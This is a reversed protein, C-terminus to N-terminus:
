NPKGYFVSRQLINGDSGCSYQATPTLMVQMVGRTSVAHSLNNGQIDLFTKEKHVEKRHEILKMDGGRIDWVKVSGDTSGSVLFNENFPDLSLSVCALTHPRDAWKLVQRQRLDLAMIGGKKYGCFLLSQKASYVTCCATSDTPTAHSWVNAKSNPLLTDWFKITKKDEDGQGVTAFYSGTNLFVMDKCTRGSFCNLTRYPNVSDEQESWRWLSVRGDSTCAGFKSGSTNFAIRNVRAQSVVHYTGVLSPINWQWVKVAGGTSGSLYYPLKPHAQLCWISTDQHDLPASSSPGQSHVLSSPGLPAMKPVSLDDLAERRKRSITPSSPTMRGLRGPSDRSGAFRGSQSQLSDGQFDRNLTNKLGQLDFEKLGSGSAVVVMNPSVANIAFANVMTKEKYVAVPSSFFITEQSVSEQYDEEEENKTNSNDNDNDNDEEEEEEGEEFDFGEYADTTYDQPRGHRVQQPKSLLQSHRASFESQLSRFFFNQKFFYANELYDQTPQEELLYDALQACNVRNKQKKKKSSSEDTPLADGFIKAKRLLTICFHADSNFNYKQATAFDQNYRLTLIQTPIIHLENELLHLSRLLYRSLHAVTFSSHSSAGFSNASLFHLLIDSFKKFIILHMLRKLYNQSSTRFTIDQAEKKSKPMAVKADRWLEDLLSLGSSYKNAPDKKTEEVQDDSNKKPQKAQYPHWRTVEPSSLQDIQRGEVLEFMTVYDSLAWATAFVGIRSAAIVLFQDSFPLTTDEMEQKEGKEGEKEREKEREKEGSPTESGSVPSQVPRAPPIRSFMPSGFPSALSSFPSSPSPSPSSPSLPNPIHAPATTSFEVLCQYLHRSTRELLRAQPLTLNNGNNDFVLAQCAMKSIYQATYLLQEGAEKFKGTAHLLLYHERFYGHNKCFSILKSVLDEEPIGLSTSITTIDEKLTKLLGDMFEKVGKSTLSNTSLNHIEVLRNTLFQSAGRLILEDEFSDSMETIMGDVMKKELEEATDHTGINLHTELNKLSNLQLKQEYALSFCGGHYYAYM